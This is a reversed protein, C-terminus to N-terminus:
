ELLFFATNNSADKSQTAKKQVDWPNQTLDNEGRHSVSLQQCYIYVVSYEHSEKKENSTTTDQCAGEMNHHSSCRFCVSREPFILSAKSMRLYKLLTSFAACVECLGRAAIGFRKSLDLDSHSQSRTARFRHDPQLVCTHKFHHYVHKACNQHFSSVGGRLVTHPIM